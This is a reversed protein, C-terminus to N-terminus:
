EDDDDDEIKLLNISDDNARQIKLGEIHQINMEPGQAFIISSIVMYIAMVAFVGLSIIVVVLRNRPSLGDCMTRLRNNAKEGAKGAKGIKEILSKM